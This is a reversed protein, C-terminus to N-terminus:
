AMQQISFLLSAEVNTADLKEEMVQRLITLAQVCAEELTIDRNFVEQLAQQAGESGSGIAKAEYQIYTGSPDMHFLQPGIEDYGAFMLAVGFPRSMAGADADDDGFALALKSVAQTVDETTMESNYVFWHHAAEVRARDILTRADAVLGSVACSKPGGTFNFESLKQQCKILSETYKSAETFVVIAKTALHPVKMRILERLMHGTHDQTILAEFTTPMDLPEYTPVKFTAMLWQDPRELDLVNPDDDQVYKNALAKWIGEYLKAYEIQGTKEPDIMRCIIHEEPATFPARLNRFALKFETESIVDEGYLSMFKLYRKENKNYWDDVRDVFNQFDTIQEMYLAMEKDFQRADKRTLKELKNLYKRSKPPM